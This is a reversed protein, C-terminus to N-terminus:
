SVIVDFFNNMLDNKTKIMNMGMGMSRMMMEEESLQIQEPSVYNGFLEPVGDKVEPSLYDGCNHMIVQILGGMQLLLKDDKCVMMMLLTQKHQVDVMTLDEGNEDRCIPDSPEEGKDGHEAKVEEEGEKDGKKVDELAQALDKAEDVLGCQRNEKKSYYGVNPNGVMRALEMQECMVQQKQQETLQSLVFTALKNSSRELDEKLGEPM